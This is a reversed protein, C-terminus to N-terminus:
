FSLAIAIKEAYIELPVYGALVQCHRQVVPSACLFDLLGDARIAPLPGDTFRMRGVDNVMSLAHGWRGFLPRHFQSASSCGCHGNSFISVTGVVTCGNGVSACSLAASPAHVLPACKAINTGVTIRGM